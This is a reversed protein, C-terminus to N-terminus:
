EQAYAGSALLYDSFLDAAGEISRDKIYSRNLFDQIEEDSLENNIYRYHDNFYDKFEQINIKPLKALEEETRPTLHKIAENARFEELNENVFKTKMIIENYRKNYIM